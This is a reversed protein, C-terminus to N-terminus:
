DFPYFAKMVNMKSTQVRADHFAKMCRLKLTDPIQAMVLGINEAANYLFDGACKNCLGTKSKCMSSFRMKVTKGIYKSRNKTTLCELEGNSKIIYCYMWNKIHEEDLTVMVYNKTGCDSGKPDLKIHQFARIFLKEWYGGIETKKGRSYAGNVGSACVISYEDASIGEMYNGTIINYKRTANPDPNAIAGKMIFMNKFNNEYTGGGGGLITDMYPDDALYEAAFKLLEKEIDEAVKADGREIAEKNAKLLEAKKKNIVKTCTIMKETHNPSLIDEFPMMWQVTNCWKKFELVTVDDENLAYSLTQDVYKFEKKSVQKNYYGNFFCSFKFDALILNFLYVGVGTTFESKNRHEKGERDTYSFGNPPVILIDYPHAVCGEEGFSGFAEMVFEYTLNKFSMNLLYDGFNAKAIPTEDTIDMLKGTGKWVTAKRKAM